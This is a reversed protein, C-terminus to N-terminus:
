ASERAHAAGFRGTRFDFARNGHVGLRILEAGHQRHKIKLGAFLVCGDFGKFRNDCARRLRGFVEVLDLDYQGPHVARGAILDARATQNFIEPRGSSPQWLLQKEYITRGFLGERRKYVVDASGYM